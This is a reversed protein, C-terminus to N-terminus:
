KESTNQSKHSSGDEQLLEKLLGCILIGLNHHGLM